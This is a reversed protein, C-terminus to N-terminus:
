PSCTGAGRPQCTVERGGRRRLTCGARPKLRGTTAQAVGPSGGQRPKENSCSDSIRAHHRITLRGTRNAKKGRRRRDRPCRLRSVGTTSRESNDREANESNNAYHPGADCDRAAHGVQGHQTSRRLGRKTNSLTRKWPM